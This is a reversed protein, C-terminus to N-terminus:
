QGRKKTLFAKRREQDSEDKLVVSVNEKRPLRWSPLPTPPLPTSLLEALCIQAKM